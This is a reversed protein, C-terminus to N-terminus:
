DHLYFGHEAMNSFNWFNVGDKHLLGFSFNTAGAQSSVPVFVGAKRLADYRVGDLDVSGEPAIVAIHGSARPNRNRSVAIAVGGRNAHLQLAEASDARRWGYQSSYLQFWTLLANATLERVTDGSASGYRANPTAGAKIQRIADDTWWVRPLYAGALTAFDYAYINSRTRGSASSARQYRAFHKPNLWLAIERLATVKDEAAASAERKPMGQETLKHVGTTDDRTIRGRGILHAEPWGDARPSPDVAPADAPPPQPRPPQPRPPPAPRVPADAKPILKADAASFTHAGLLGAGTAREIARRLASIRHTIYGKNLDLGIELLAEIADRMALAKAIKGYAGRGGRGHHIVDFCM